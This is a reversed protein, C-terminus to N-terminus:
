IKDIHENLMTSIFQRSLGYDSQDSVDLLKEMKVVLAQSAVILKTFNGELTLLKSVTDFTGRVLSEPEYMAFYNSCLLVFAEAYEKVEAYKEALLYYPISIAVGALRAIDGQKLRKDADILVDNKITYELAELIMDELVDINTYREHLEKHLEGDRNGTLALKAEEFTM